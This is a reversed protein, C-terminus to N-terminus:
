FGMCFNSGRIPSNAILRFFLSLFLFCHWNYHGVVNIGAALPLVRVGSPGFHSEYRSVLSEVVSEVSMKIAAVSVCHLTLEVGTYLEPKRM